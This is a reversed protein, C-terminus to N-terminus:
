LNNKCSSSVQKQIPIINSHSKHLLSLKTYVQTPWANLPHRSAMMDITDKLTNNMQHYAIIFHTFISKILLYYKYFTLFVHDNHIYVYFYNQNCYICVSSLITVLMRLMKETVGADNSCRGGVGFVGQCALVTSMGEGGQTWLYCDM